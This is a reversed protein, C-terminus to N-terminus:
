CVASAMPKGWPCWNSLPGWWTPLGAKYIAWSCRRATLRGTPRWLVLPLPLIAPPAVPPLSRSCSPTYIKPLEQPLWHQLMARDGLHGQVVLTEVGESYSFAGVPLAPSVLQLLRLLASHDITIAM